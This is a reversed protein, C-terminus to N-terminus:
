KQQSEDFNEPRRYTMADRGDRQLHEDKLRQFILDNNHKMLVELQNLCNLIAVLHLDQQKLHEVIERHRVEDPTGRIHRVFRRWM